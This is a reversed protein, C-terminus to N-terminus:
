RLGVLEQPALGHLFLLMALREDQDAGWVIAEIEEGRLERPLISHDTPQHPREPAELAMHGQCPLAVARPGGHVLM